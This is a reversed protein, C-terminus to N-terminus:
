KVVVFKGRKYGEIARVCYFYIGTEFREGGPRTLAVVSRGPPAYERLPEAVIRGALDFVEVHVLGPQTTVLELEGWGRVPNTTVRAAFETGGDERGALLPSPAPSTRTIVIDDIQIIEGSTIPYDNVEVDLYSGATRTVYDFHIQQWTPTLTVGTSYASSGQQTSGVFERVKIKAAGHHAPSRVWASLHYSIGAATVNQILDPSDKIGYTGNSPAKAQVCWSGSHGPTVRTLTSSGNPAWGNLNTEFVPNTVLNGDGASPDIVTISTVVSHSM